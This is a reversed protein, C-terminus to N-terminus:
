PGPLWCFSPEIIAHSLKPELDLSQLQGGSLATEGGIEQGQVGPALTASRAARPDSTM